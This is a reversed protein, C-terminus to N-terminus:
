HGVINKRINKRTKKGGGDRSRELIYQDLTGLNEIVRAIEDELLEIEYENGESKLDKKLNNLQAELKEKEAILYTRMRKNAAQMYLNKQEALYIKLEDSKENLTSNILRNRIYELRKGKNNSGKEQNFKKGYYEIKKKKLFVGLPMAHELANWNPTYENTYVTNYSITNPTNRDGRGLPNTWKRTNIKGASIGKFLKNLFNNPNRERSRSRSRSRERGSM